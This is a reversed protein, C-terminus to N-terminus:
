KQFLTSIGLNETIRSTLNPFMGGGSFLFEGNYLVVFETPQRCRSIEIEKIEGTDMNLSRACYKRIFKKPHGLLILQDNNFFIHDVILFVDASNSEDLYEYINLDLNYKRILINTTNEHAGLPRPGVNVCSHVMYLEVPIPFRKCLQQKKKIELIGIESESSIESLKLEACAAPVTESFFRNM